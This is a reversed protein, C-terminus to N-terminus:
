REYDRFKYDNQNPKVSLIQHEKGQRIQSRGGPKLALISMHLEGSHYPRGVSYVPPKFRMVSFLRLLLANEGAFQRHCGNASTLKNPLEHSLYLKILAEGLRVSITGRRILYAMYPSYAAKNALQGADNASLVCRYVWARHKISAGRLRIWPSLASPSVTSM